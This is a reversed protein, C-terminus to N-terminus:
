VGPAEDEAKDCDGGYYTIPWFEAIAQDELDRKAVAAHNTLLESMPYAVALVVMFALASLLSRQMNSTLTNAEDTGVSFIWLDKKYRKTSETPSGPNQFVIHCSTWLSWVADFRYISEFKVEGSCSRMDKQHVGETIPSVLTLASLVQM